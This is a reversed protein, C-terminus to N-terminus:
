TCNKFLTLRLKRMCLCGLIINAVYGTKHGKLKSSRFYNLSFNYLKRNM